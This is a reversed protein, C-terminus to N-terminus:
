APLESKFIRFLFFLSPVLFAAGAAVIWLFAHLTIEPAAAQTYTMEGPILYPTQSAYWGVLIAVAELAVAIRAAAFRRTWVLGLVVFGLLMAAGIGPLARPRTLAEFTTTATVAALGLALAGVGALAFTAVIARIRFDDRLNGTTELTLFVGALQACLSVAFM